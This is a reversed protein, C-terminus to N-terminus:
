VLLSQYIFIQLDGESTAAHLYSRNPQTNGPVSCFWRDFVAFEQALFVSIPVDELSYAGM